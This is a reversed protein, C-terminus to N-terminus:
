NFVYSISAFYVLGFCAGLQISLMIYIKRMFAIRVTKSGFGFDLVEHKKTYVPALGSKNFHNAMKPNGSTKRGTSQVKRAISSPINATAMTSNSVNFLPSNFKGYQSSFQDSYM